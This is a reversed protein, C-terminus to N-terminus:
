IGLGSLANSLQNILATVRPHEVEFEKSERQLTDLLDQVAEPTYRELGERADELLGELAGTEKPTKKLEVNLEDIAKKVKKHPM